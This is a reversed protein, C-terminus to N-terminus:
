ALRGLLSIFMQDTDHLHGFLQVDGPVAPLPLDASVGRLVAAADLRRVDTRRELVSDVIRRTEALVPSCTVYAVVGGPRVADLASELLGRQLVTLSELDEARKRWRAEPRRRLSGLGSCPADVLVRDFAAPFEAGLERGDRESVGTVVGDPLARVNSRVLRARHPSPENAALVAHRRAALAGLLATKGGPGACMDLWRERVPSGGDVADPRGVAASALALAALQSGEDEVGVLGRRVADLRDPNVGHVRLAYPSWRGPAYRAHPPLQGILEDMTILGPRIALTVDPTADDAQLIMRLDADGDVGRGGQPAADGDVAGAADAGPAPAYGAARWSRDLEDVIWEPHSWRVALREHPRDKPVRSVVLAEWERRSRSVVAHMVANVFGARGRGYMRKALTVSESAAAHAPVDMFLAQYVGLRLISLLGPDVDATRRRSAASIVADVLGRWRQTGYVLETVFAADRAGLGADAILGPLVLNAFGDGQEVRLTAELAVRRPGANNPLRGRGNGGGRVTRKAGGDPM